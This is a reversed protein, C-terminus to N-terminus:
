EYRLAKVPNATAAKIAQFSVTFFAITLAIGGALAFMWWSIDIRYAFDQLWNKTFYWAVPSAVLFSLVILVLFDKSLLVAIRNANAGLVKRIGIEKTKKEATFAALGFLGLCSIIIALGAFYKSLTEVKKESAYQAQYDEDLFKYEFSYGRNFKEYFNKLDKLVASEKGPEIRVMFNISFRPEIRFLLPKIIEHLSEFHFDKVVGIIEKDGSYHKVVKGIPDKLGMIKIAAENFIIKTDDSGFDRSFARGEKMKIGLTELMDYGVCVEEFYISEDPNKGEWSLGGTTNQSGVVTSLISSANVVGPIKKLETLFADTNEAAKGEKEFYIIDDKEFGPNMTQIYELQKYVVLVAIIFIISLSFQFVVLGKRVFIERSSAVSKGKLINIPNFRSLYLAPYSGSILGTFLTIGVLASIFNIDFKLSLHKGTIENFEPLFIEVLIYSIMLSFFAMMLSEGLFQLILSKRGAGIAKKIGVEKLRCGAKATSLNMFNICAILLIFVAIISFIRVYNIRGGTQMGNEYKGYLYGDSYKRTFLTVVSNEYKKKVFGEIKKNFEDLDTGKNLVLYTYPAHNDWNIPRGIKNCFYKWAEFPLVFDFQASSNSPPNEFIGSVVVPEGIGLLQWDLTKGIINATTNFIKLALQHSIVITSKGSLVQNKNGYILDYSFINFFDKGAFQGAAKFKKEKDAIVFNGILQAPLVAAAFKVEPLEEAMTEALLDPTSEMTVIDGTNNHNAMVQYLQADNKHFKDFNLEDNVWLYILLVCALGTSLGLLNILFTNKFRLFSRFIILLFHELM